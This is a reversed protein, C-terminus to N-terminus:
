RRKRPTSRVVVEVAFPLLKEVEDDSLDCRRDPRDDSYMVRVRCAKGKPILEGSLDSRVVTEQAM